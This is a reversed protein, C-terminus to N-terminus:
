FVPSPVRRGTTSISKDQNRSLRMVPWLKHSMYPCVADLGQPYLMFPNGICRRVLVRLGLGPVTHRLRIAQTLLNKLSQRRSIFRYRTPHGKVVLSGHVSDQMIPWQGLEVSLARSCPAVLECVRSNIWVMGHTHFILGDPRVGKISGGYAPM